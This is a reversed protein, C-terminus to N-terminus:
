EDGTTTLKLMGPLPNSGSIGAQGTLLDILGELAGPARGYTAIYGDVRPFDLWDTPSKLAVAIIPTDNRALLRALRMQWKSKTLSQIHSQWTFLLVLDFKQATKPLTQLLDQEKIIGEWPPSYNVRETRIGQTQLAAELMPYFDWSADPGIILVQRIDGPLPVLSGNGKFVTVARQGIEIALSANESWTPQGTEKLPFANLGQLAKLRLISLVAEDLRGMPLEGSEIASLLHEISAQADEASPILLLDVGAKVAELTAQPVNIGGSIVGQMNMADSLVVGEFKLDDRLLRIMEPSRSAPLDNGSIKPFAIHSIMVVPAGAALGRRFPLLYSAELVQREVQDVPLLNHSDDAVGGHGPFHKLVPILGAALYGTVAQVVYESVKQPDDGFTRLAVIRSDYNFLVDAVPGLVMNIGSYALEQGSSRAARYAFEPDGTAAQALADPYITAGEAFRYVSEGEHDLATILPIAQDPQAGAATRACNQIDASFQRLQQPNAANEMRFFIGGPRLHQVMECSGGTLERGAIGMLVIQGVKERLSMGALIKKAWSVDSRPSETSQSISSLAPLWTKVESPSPDLSASCASLFICLACFLALIRIVM